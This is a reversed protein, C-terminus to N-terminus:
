RREKILLSHIRDLRANGEEIHRDLTDIREALDASRQAALANAAEIRAELEQRLRKERADLYGAGATGVTVLIGLAIGALQLWHRVARSRAVRSIRDAQQGDM